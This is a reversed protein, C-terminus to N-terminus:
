KSVLCKLYERALTAGKVNVSRDYIFLKVDTILNDRLLKINDDTLATLTTYYYGGYDNVKAEINAEEINIHINNELLLYLGKKGVNLTSGPCNLTIYVDGKFKCFSIGGGFPTISMTDGNFKDIKTEIKACISDNSQSFAVLTSIMLLLALTLKKIM